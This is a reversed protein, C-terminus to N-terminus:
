DSPPEVWEVATVDFRAGGAESEGVDVTWGHAGAVESVIDLGLGTGNGGTVGREFVRERQEPPIGPGDDAVYFGDATTGFTVSVEPGAHHVANGFLNELLRQFHTGDAM